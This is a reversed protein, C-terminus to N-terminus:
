DLRVFFRTLRDNEFHLTAIWGTTVIHNVRSVRVFGSSRWVFDGTSEDPPPLVNRLSLMAQHHTAGLGVLNMFRLHRVKIRATPLDSIDDIVEVDFNDIQRGGAYSIGHSDFSNFGDAFITDNTGPVRWIRAGLPHGGLQPSGPGLRKELYQMTDLGVRIGGITAFKPIKTKSDKISEAHISAMFFTFGVLFTSIFTM